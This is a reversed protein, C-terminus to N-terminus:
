YKMLLVVFCCKGKHTTLQNILSSNKNDETDKYKDELGKFKFVKPTEIVEIHDYIEKPGLVLNNNVFLMSTSTPVKIPKEYLNRSFVSEMGQIM